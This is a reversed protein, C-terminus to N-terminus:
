NANTVVIPRLEPHVAYFGNTFIGRYTLRHDSRSTGVDTDARAGCEKCFKSPHKCHAGCKPCLGDDSGINIWINSYGNYSARVNTPIAGGREVIKAQMEKFYDSKLLVENVSEEYYPKEWFCPSLKSGCNTCFKADLDRKESCKPCVPYFVAYVHHNWGAGYEGKTKIEIYLEAVNEM